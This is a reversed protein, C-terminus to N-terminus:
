EPEITQPCFNSCQRGFDLWQERLGAMFKNFRDDQRLNALNPDSQFLPYCPFGDLAACDLWKVAQEVQNMLAFAVAINYAAHHFHGFGKGNKVALAIKSEAESEKGASAALVAQLSVHLAGDDRPHDNSLQDVLAAAEERRELNFLVWATQYGILAPNVDQPISRLISLAEEHKGQFALTEGTRYVALNNHPNTLATERAERLAEDFYGVHCYVLALQNRAEDLSPNLALAQRYERVAKAHPFHNAPTWLLRGRALHAVALDPSLALAKEVAVFAKEEWEREHPAFLFLKWTYSQALEAYASAFAPDIEVARELAEIAAGNDHQNQRQAYFRGRLYCDYAEPKLAISQQQAQSSATGSSVEAVFRYGRKPITAIYKQDDRGGGLLKRLTSINRALSGEEVFTGPWLKNLLLEKELVRGGSEALALLLDYIKPALPVATSGRNLLRQERNIRYPGFDLFELVEPQM